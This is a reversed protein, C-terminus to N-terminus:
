PKPCIHSHNPVFIAAGEKPINSSGTVKGPWLKRKALRIIYWAQWYFIDDMMELIGIKRYFKRLRPVFYDFANYQIIHKILKKIAKAM